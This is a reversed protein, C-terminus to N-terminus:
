LAADAIHYPVCHGDSLLLRLVFALM